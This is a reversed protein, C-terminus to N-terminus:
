VNRSLKDIKLLDLNLHHILDYLLSINKDSSSIEERCFDSYRVMFEDYIEDPVDIVKLDIQCTTHYLLQAICFYVTNLNLVLDGYTKNEWNIIYAYYNDSAVQNYEENEMVELEDLNNILYYTKMCRIVKEVSELLMQVIPDDVNDLLEFDDPSISDADVLGKLDSLDNEFALLFANKSIENIIFGLTHPVSGLIAEEM